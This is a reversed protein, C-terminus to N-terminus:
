PDQKQTRPQRLAPDSDLFVTQTTCDGNEIHYYGWPSFTVECKEVSLMGPGASSVNTVFPGATSACGAQLAAAIALLRTTNRM